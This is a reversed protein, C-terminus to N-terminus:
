KEDAFMYGRGWVTRIRDKGRPHASLKSRLKSIHVDISRDFAMYDRGRGLSMLQDRTFVTNPRSMLVEILDFEASSIPIVTDEIEITRRARNLVIGAARLETEEGPKDKAPDAHIRRFVAKIRALLERPNFPKPVYDDAGLELGVIRDTDEGKATLMIVPLGSIKRIDKLIDLGDRDPLMIDLIVMDPGKKQITEMVRSGDALATISFGYGELYETLLKQLKSDDDVLLVHRDMASGTKKLNKCKRLM